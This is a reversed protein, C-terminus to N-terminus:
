LEKPLAFDAVGPDQANAAAFPLAFAVAERLGLGRQLWAHLVCALLVDGSGTASVEHIAPPTLSVPEDGVDQLWVPGAGQTVIWRQV